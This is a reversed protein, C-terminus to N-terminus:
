NANNNDNNEEKKKEENEENKKNKKDKLIKLKKELNELKVVRLYERVNEERLQRIKHNTSSIYLKNSKLLNEKEKDEKAQKKREAFDAQRRESKGQWGYWVTHAKRIYLWEQAVQFCPLCVLPDQM